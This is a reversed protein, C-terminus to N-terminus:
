LTIAKGIGARGMLLGRTDTVALRLHRGVVQEKKGAVTDAWFDHRRIAYTSPVEAAEPISLAFAPFPRGIEIWKSEYGPTIAAIPKPSESLRAAAISLLAVACLYALLRVFNSPLEDRWSHLAPHMRDDKAVHRQTPPLERRSASGVPQGKGSARHYNM